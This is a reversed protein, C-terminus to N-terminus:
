SRRCDTLFGIAALRHARVEPIALLEEMASSSPGRMKAWRAIEWDCQSHFPAWTSAGFAVQSSHYISSEQPVGPLPAGPDGNPFREVFIEPAAHLRDAEPQMTSRPPTPVPEVFAAPAPTQASVRRDQELNTTTPHDNSLAELLDADTADTADTADEAANATDESIGETANAAEETTTTARPASDATPSTNAPPAGVGPNSPDQPFHDVFPMYAHSARSYNHLSSVLLNM